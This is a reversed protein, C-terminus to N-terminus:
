AVFLGVLSITFGSLLVPFAVMPDWDHRWEHLSKAEAAVFLMDGGMIALGAIMMGFGM